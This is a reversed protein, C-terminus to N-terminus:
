SSLEKIIDVLTMDNLRKARNDHREHLHYDELSPPIINPNDFFCIDLLTMYAQITPYDGTITTSPDASFWLVYPADEDTANYSLFILSDSDIQIDSVDHSIGRCVVLKEFTKARHLAMNISAFQSVIVRMDNGKKAIYKQEKLFERIVYVYIQKGASHESADADLLDFIDFSRKTPKIEIGAEKAIRIAHDMYPMFRSKGYYNLTKYFVYFPSYAKEIAIDADYTEKDPTLQEVCRLIERNFNQRLGDRYSNTEEQTPKTVWESINSLDGMYIPASPISSILAEGYVKVLGCIDARSMRIYQRYRKLKGICDAIIIDPTRINRLLSGASGKISELLLHEIALSESVSLPNYKLM